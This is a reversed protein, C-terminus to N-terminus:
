LTHRIVPRPLKRYQKRKRAELMNNVSGFLQWVVIVSGPILISGCVFLVLIIFFEM